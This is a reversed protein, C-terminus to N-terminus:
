YFHVFACAYPELHITFSIVSPSVSVLPVAEGVLQSAADLQALQASTPYMPSGWSEWLGRPNAHMSDIISVYAVSPAPLSGHNVYVVATDNQIPLDFRRFNTIFLQGGRLVEQASSSLVTAFASIASSPASINAIIIADGAAHLMEFARFVPKAIGYINQLGFANSFPEARLGGEEFIDTFTWWSFM